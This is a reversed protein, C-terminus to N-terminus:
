AVTSKRPSPSNESMVTDFTFVVDDATVPTGDQWTANPNLHFTYTVGDEAIEWSDAFGSPVVSGDIPSNGVLGEFIFGIILGSYIDSTLIPNLTSIDSTYTHVLLGGMEGPEE